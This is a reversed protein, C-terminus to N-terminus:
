GTSFRLRWSHCGRWQQIRPLIAGALLVGCLLVGTSAATMAMVVLLKALYHTWRPLPRALLNKWQNEAHDLGAVLATELTVFLPLMLLAWVPLNLRLLELWENGAGGRRLMSFPAQSAMFLGPLGVAVPAIVVMKLASTRKIELAEAHPVRLLTM